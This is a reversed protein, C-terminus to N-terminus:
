DELKSLQGSMIAEAVGDADPDVRYRGGRKLETGAVTMDANARVVIRDVGSDDNIRVKM